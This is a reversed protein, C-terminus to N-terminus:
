FMIVEQWMNAQKCTHIQNRGSFGSASVLTDRGQQQFQGLSRWRRVTATMGTTARPPLSLCRQCFWRRRKSVVFRALYRQVYGFDVARENMMTNLTSIPGCSWQSGSVHWLSKRLLMHATEAGRFWRWLWDHPVKATLKGLYASWARHLLHVDFHVLSDCRLWM